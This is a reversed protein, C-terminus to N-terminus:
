LKEEVELISVNKVEYLIPNCEYYTVNTVVHLFSTFKGIRYLSHNFVVALFM